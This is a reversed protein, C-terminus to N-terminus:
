LPQRFRSEALRYRNTILEGILNVLHDSRKPKTASAKSPVPGNSNIHQQPLRKAPDNNGQARRRTM